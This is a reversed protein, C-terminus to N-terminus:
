FPLTAMNLPIKYLLFIPKSLCGNWLVNPSEETLWHDNQLPVLYWILADSVYRRSFKLWFLQFKFVSCDLFSALIIAVSFCALFQKNRKTSSITRGWFPVLYFIYVSHRFIHKPIKLIMLDFMLDLIFSFSNNGSDFCVWKLYNMWNCYIKMNGLGRVTDSRTDTWPFIELCDCYYCISFSFNCVFQENPHIFTADVVIHEAVLMWSFTIFPFSSIPSIDVAWHELTVWTMFSYRFILIEHKRFPQLSSHTSWKGGAYYYVVSVAMWSEVSHNARIVRNSFNLQLM